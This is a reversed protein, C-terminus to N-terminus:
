ESGGSKVDRVQSLAIYQMGSASPRASSAPAAARPLQDVGTAEQVDVIVGLGGGVRPCRRMPM